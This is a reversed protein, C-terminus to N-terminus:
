WILVAPDACVHMFRERSVAVASLNQMWADWLIVSAFFINKLAKWTPFIVKNGGTQVM